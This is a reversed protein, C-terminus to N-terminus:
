VWGRTRAEGETMWSITISHQVPGGDDGTIAQPAKGYARDLIEKIAAVRTAESEASAMLRALEALAAPAHKQALEKIEFRAESTAKNLSGVKRGAGERKGGQM